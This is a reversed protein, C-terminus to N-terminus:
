LWEVGAMTDLLETGYWAPTQFGSATASGNIRTAIECVCQATFRYAEPGRLSIAKEGTASTAIAMVYTAGKRLQRDSPGEPLFRLLHDLILDRLWLLRGNMMRVILGPFVAYTQINPIGTSLGATFLDARWPNCVANFNKGAVSFAKRSEAPRAPVLKGDLRRVGSREIKRLVTKLTGRSAGGATAYLITLASADPLAQAVKLAAVDTPVVGFGAGPMLMIGAARAAADHAFASRIEDVEGAIDIYHCGVALCGRILPQQTAQFPGALNVVLKVGALHREIDAPNDLGFVAAECDHTRAVAAVTDGRGALVPRLGRKLMETACLKGMYGSAGYILVDAM